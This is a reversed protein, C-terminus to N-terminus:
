RFNFQLRSGACTQEVSDCIIPFNSAQFDAFTFGDVLKVQKNQEVALVVYSPSKPLTIVNFVIFGISGLVFITDVVYKLIKSIWFRGCIQIWGGDINKEYSFLFWISALGSIAFM